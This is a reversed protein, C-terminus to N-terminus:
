EGKQAAHAPSPTPLQGRITKKILQKNNWKWIRSFWEAAEEGYYKKFFDHYIHLQGTTIFRGWPMSLASFINEVHAYTDETIQLACLNADNPTLQPPTIKKGVCADFLVRTALAGEKWYYLATDHMAIIGNEHMFPLVVLYDLLEGPLRHVTDLFCFDFEINLKEIIEPLYKGTHLHWNKKDPYLKAAAWGTALTNDLYWREALDVSVVESELGLKELIHLLLASSGGASVGVELLTKPRFRKILGALFMCNEASLEIGSEVAPFTEMVSPDYVDPDIMKLTMPFRPNM